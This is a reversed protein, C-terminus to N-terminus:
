RPRVAGIDVLADRRVEVVVQRSAGGAAFTWPLPLNDAIVEVSRRGVAVREFRFRGSADTRAAFRGDLVVTVNAAPRETAGRVGDGNEDLFVVGAVHGTAATPPGGLVGRPRGGSFDYRLSVFVSRNDPLAFFAVENALPDLVFPSRREGRSETVNGLLLWRPAVRWRWGLNLDIGESDEDGDARTLRVSGDISFTETLDFGGYTAFTTTRTTTGRGLALEGAGVAVSLRSGERLRLAHDVLVQWSDGASDDTAHDLQARTQGWDNAADAFLQLSRASDDRAGAGSRRATLGGGYGLRASHQYRLYGNGYWGEFGTGTLSDIRDLAANWSVRGFTSDVRYYAGQVDNNIPWAGWALDPELRFLGYRHTVSGRASLADVWLGGASDGDSDSALANLQVSDRDWQWRQAGLAARVREAQPFPSGLADPVIRGETALVSLAGSSRSSGDRQLAAAFVSGEGLDFGSFQTGGFSGGRGLAAQVTLGRDLQRWETSAGLMPVSPLIFRYQDRSLAPMPTNLVGLGNDIAWGGPMRLGRQWLTATGRLRHGDRLGDGRFLVADASLDGWDATGLYGGFATGFELRPEGFVDTRQAIAEVHYARPPGDLTTAEDEDPPLEALRESAIVRDQYVPEAAGTPEDVLGDFALFPDYGVEGDGAEGGDPQPPPDIALAPGAAGLLM